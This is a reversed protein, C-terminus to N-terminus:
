EQLGDQVIGGGPEAVKEFAVQVIDDEADAMDGIDNEVPFEQLRFFIVPIEVAEQV